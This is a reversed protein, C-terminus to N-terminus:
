RRANSSSHDSMENTNGIAVSEHIAYILGRLAKQTLPVNAFM